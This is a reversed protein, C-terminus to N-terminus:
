FFLLNGWQKRIMEYNEQIEAEERGKGDAMDWEASFVLFGNKLLMDALKDHCLMVMKNVAKDADFAIVAVKAGKKKMIDM